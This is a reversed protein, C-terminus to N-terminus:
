DSKPGATTGGPVQPPRKPPIFDVPEQGFDGSPQPRPPRPPQVGAIPEIGHELHNDDSANDRKRNVMQEEGKSETSGNVVDTDTIAVWVGRSGEIQQRITGDDGVAFQTGVFISRPEPYTSMFSGRTYWGAIWTGDARRIRVFSQSVREAAFDWATPVANKGNRQVLLSAEIPRGFFNITRDVSVPRYHILLALIAPIIFGFVLVNTGVAEADSVGIADEAGFTLGKAIERSAVSLYISDLLVSFLIVRALTLGFNRDEFREGKLRRRIAAYILGPLALILFAFITFSSGPLDM